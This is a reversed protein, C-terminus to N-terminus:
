VQTMVDPVHLEVSEELMAVGNQVKLPQASFKGEEKEHEEMATTIDATTNGAGSPLSVSATSSDHMSSDGDLSERRGAQAALNPSGPSRPLPPQPSPYPSSTEPNRLRTPLDIQINLSALLSELNDETSSTDRSSTLAPSTSTLSPATSATQSRLGLNAVVEPNCIPRRGFHHFGWGTAATAPVDGNAISDLSLYARDAGGPRCCPCIRYKCGERPNPVWPKASQTLFEALDSTNSEKVTAATKRDSEQQLVKALHKRQNFITMLQESTYTKAIFEPSMEELFNAPNTARQEPGRLRPKVTNVMDRGLEDFNCEEGRCIAERLLEEHDQTCCYLWGLPGLNGCSDCRLHYSYVRILTVHTCAAYTRTQRSSGQPGTKIKIGAM